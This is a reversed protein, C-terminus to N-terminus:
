IIQCGVGIGVIGMGVIEVIVIANGVAMVIEVAMANEVDM